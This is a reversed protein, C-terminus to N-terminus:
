EREESELGDACRRLHESNAVESCGGARSGGDLRMGEAIVNGPATAVDRFCVGVGEMRRSELGFCSRTAVIVPKVVREGRAAIM